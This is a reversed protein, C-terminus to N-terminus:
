EVREATIKVRDILGLKDRETVKLDWEKPQDSKVEVNVPTSGQPKVKGLEEIATLVVNLIRVVDDAQSKSMSEIARTFRALEKSMDKIYISSDIPKNLFDEAKM